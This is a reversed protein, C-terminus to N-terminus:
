FEKLLSKLSELDEESLSPDNTVFVPVPTGYTNNVSVDPDDNVKYSQFAIFALLLM